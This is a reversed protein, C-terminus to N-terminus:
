KWRITRRFENPTIGLLNKFAKHFQKQDNYGVLQAVEAVKKDTNALLRCCQEIRVKQLYKCFTLGTDQKFKMSLYPLSLYLEQAIDSLTIPLMYKKEIYEVIYQSYDGCIVNADTRNISRMALIFVEILLCRMIEVYGAQKQDFEALLRETLRLISGDTDKFIHNAPNASLFSSEFRILYNNVVEKLSRCEALTKDVTAPMFLCNIIKFSPTAETKEYEHYSNFDIFFYDGPRIITTVGDLIHEAEGELVYVLELFDHHHWRSFDHDCLTIHIRNKEACQVYKAYM